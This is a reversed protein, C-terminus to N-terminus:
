FAEYFGVVSFIINFAGFRVLANMIVFKRLNENLSVTPLKFFETSFTSFTMHNTSMVSYKTPRIKKLRAFVSNEHKLVM